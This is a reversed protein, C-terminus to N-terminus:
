PWRRKRRATRCAEAFNSGAVVTVAHGAARLGLCLALVPQVDGRTGLAAVTIRKGTTSM